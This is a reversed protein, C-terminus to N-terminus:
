QAPVLKQFEPQTRLSNINPDNRVVNLINNATPNAALRKANLDLALKLDAMAETPRGTVAEVAALNYRHEPADPALVVIKKLAKEFGSIYGLQGFFQAVAAADPYKIAPNDIAQNFLEIARNTKGMDFVVALHTPKEKQILEVLTNTFGSIASVNMGKSNILPSRILAYYARFILAYADLLFLKNDPWDQSTM